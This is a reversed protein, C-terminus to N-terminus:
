CMDVSRKPYSLVEWKLARRLERQFRKEGVIHVYRHKPSTEYFLFGADVLRARMERRSCLTRYPGSDATRVRTLASILREDRSKGDMCLQIRGLVTESRASSSVPKGPWVFMSSGKTTPGCYMWRCAQYVTGIEGAETDSYAIFVHIGKQAMLRCARSILFSASHPHAWHVCAGRTLTRVVHAYEPGCVSSATKTGATRGFCVAGALHEGFYLGFRFDTTGMSKLWEYKLIVEKATANDIERVSANKLSVALARKEAILPDFELAHSERILKQHAIM